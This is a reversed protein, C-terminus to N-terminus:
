VGPEQDSVETNDDGSTDGEILQDIRTTNAAHNSRNQLWVVIIGAVQTVLVALFALLEESM